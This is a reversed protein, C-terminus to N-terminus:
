LGQVGELDRLRKLWQCERLPILSKVGEPHTWHDTDIHVRITHWQTPVHIIKISHWKVLLKDRLGRWSKLEHEWISGVGRKLGKMQCHCTERVHTADCLRMRSTRIVFSACECIHCTYRPCICEYTHCTENLHPPTIREYTHIHTLIHAVDSLDLIWSGLRHIACHISM